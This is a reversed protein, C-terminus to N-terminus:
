RRRCRRVAVFAPIPALETADLVRIGAVLEPRYHRILLHWYGDLPGIDITGDLVSDLIRRATVLSGVSQRFVPRGARGTPWFHHRLANFGSHSHEM